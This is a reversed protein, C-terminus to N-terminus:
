TEHLVARIGSHGLKQIESNRAVPLLELAGPFAPVGSRRSSPVKSISNGGGRKGRNGESKAGLLNAVNNSRDKRDRLGGLM